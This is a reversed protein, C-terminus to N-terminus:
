LLNVNKVDIIRFIAVHAVSHPYYVSHDMFRAAKIKKIAEYFM